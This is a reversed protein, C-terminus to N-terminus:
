GTPKQQRIEARRWVVFVGFLLVVAFLFAAMRHLMVGEVRGTKLDLRYTKGDENTIVLKGDEVHMESIFVWQVDQELIPNITITYVTTEWLKLGSARDFAQVHGIKEVDLPARYEVGQWIVPPVPKPAARKAYASGAWLFMATTVVILAIPQVRM